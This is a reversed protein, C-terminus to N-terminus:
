MTGLVERVKERMQGARYRKVGRGAWHLISPKRVAVFGPDTWWMYNCTRPLLTVRVEWKELSDHLRSNTLDQESCHDPIIPFDPAEVLPRHSADMVMVGANVYFPTPWRQGSGGEDQTKHRTGPVTGPITSFGHDFRFSVFRDLRRDHNADGISSEDYAGFNGEPVVDFLNPCGPLPLADADLYAVRRYPGLLTAIAFKSSMPWDPHGPWRLVVLDAGLRRAYAGLLPLGSEHLREAEDGVVVTAVAIDSSTPLDYEPPKTVTVYKPGHDYDPCTPCTEYTCCGHKECRLV